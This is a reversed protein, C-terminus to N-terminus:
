RVAKFLFQFALLGPRHRARGRFGTHGEWVIRYGADELLTRATRHTYFRLHTRDLIGTDTYRWRGRVLQLRVKWNAVNPISVLLFGNETLRPKLRLLLREPERLHELVDALLVAEYSGKLAMKEVDGVWVK